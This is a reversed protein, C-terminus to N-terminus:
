VARSAYVHRWHWRYNHTLMPRDVDKLCESDSRTEYVEDIEITSGIHVLVSTNDNPGAHECRRSKHHTRCARLKDRPEGDVSTENLGTTWDYGLDETIM